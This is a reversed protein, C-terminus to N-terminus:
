KTRKVVSMVKRLPKTIKWSRSMYVENLERHVKDLEMRVAGLEGRVTNLEGRVTNLEGRTIELDGRVTDLKSCANGLETTLKKKEARVLDDYVKKVNTIQGYSDFEKTLSELAIDLRIRSEDYRGLEKLIAATQLHAGFNCSDQTIVKEILELAKRLEGEKRSISSLEILAGIDGPVLNLVYDLSTVLKEQSSFGEAAEKTSLFSLAEDDNNALLLALIYRYHHPTGPQWPVTKNETVLERFATFIHRSDDPTLDSPIRLWQTSIIYDWSKLHPEAAEHMGKENLMDVIIKKTRIADEAISSSLKGRMLSSKRQIHHYIIDPILTVTKAHILATALTVLDEGVVLDTRYRINYQNLFHRKYLYTIHSTPIKRLFKSEYINTNLVRKTPTSWKNSEIVKGNNIVDFGGKVMESGYQDAESYLKEMADSPLTDDADLFFIYNGQANDLGTNRAAAAGKNSDHNIVRVRHDNNAFESLIAPSSDTSCDNVCIIEIEKLSQKIASDLCTHLFQEANYIPIIISIKPDPTM